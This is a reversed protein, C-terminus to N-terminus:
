WGGFNTDENDDLDTPLDDDTHGNWNVDNCHIL